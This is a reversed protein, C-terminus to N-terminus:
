GLEERVISVCDRAVEEPGRSADVVKYRGQEALELYRSRVEQLFETEEYKMDGGDKRRVAREAPLDLLLTLDPWVTVPEHVSRIWEEPDDLHNQLTVSQYAIRSDVYRDCFVLREESLAPQIVRDVHSAHDATFLFFDVFAPSGDDGISRRVADGLWSDTPEKTHVADPWEKRLEQMVTTKGAGDIGEVTILMANDGRM